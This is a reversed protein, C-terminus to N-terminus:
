LLPTHLALLVWLSEPWDGQQWGDALSKFCDYSCPHGVNSLLVTEKWLFGLILM